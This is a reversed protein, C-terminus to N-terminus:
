RREFNDRDDEFSFKTKAVEVIDNHAKEVYEHTNLLWFLVQILNCLFIFFIVKNIAVKM